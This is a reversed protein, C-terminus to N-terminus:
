PRRSCTGRLRYDGQRVLLQGLNNLALPQRVSGSRRYLDYATEHAASARAYNAARHRDAWPADLLRGAVRGVVPARGPSGRAWRADGRDRRTGAPSSSVGLQLSGVAIWAADVGAADLRRQLSRVVEELTATGPVVTTGRRATEVLPSWVWADVLRLATSSFPDGTALCRGAEALKAAVAEEGGPGVGARILGASAILAEVRAAANGSPRGAAEAAATTCASARPTM